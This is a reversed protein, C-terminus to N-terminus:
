GKETGSLRWTGDAQLCALDTASEVGHDLAFVSRYQRCPRGDGAHFTRLPRVLGSNGTTPNDWYLIAGDGAEALARGTTADYAMKDSPALARGAAIGATGGALVGAATMAIQGLGGGFQYGVYGGIAAGAAAGVMEATSLKNAGCGGLALALSLVIIRYRM